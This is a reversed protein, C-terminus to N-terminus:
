NTLAWVAPELWGLQFSIAENNRGVENVVVRPPKLNMLKRICEAAENEQKFTPNDFDPDSKDVYPFYRAKTM